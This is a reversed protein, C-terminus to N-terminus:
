ERVGAEENGMAVGGWTGNSWTEPISELLLPAPYWEQKLNQVPRKIESVKEEGKM